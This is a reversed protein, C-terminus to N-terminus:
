LPWGIPEGNEIREIYESMGFARAGDWTFETIAEAIRSQLVIDGIKRRNRLPAVQLVRATIIATRNATRATIRMARPDKADTWDTFTDLDLIEEYAGDVLLAGSRFARGDPGARKLLMIGRGDAFSALYLRYWVITTWFRPGWSHDRWGYGDIPFVQGGIAIEGQVRTHQNFHGLSFNRGYMTLVDDRAPVGGHAPAMGTQRWSVRGPARAAVAFMHAPNRLLNPDDLLLFEGAYTMEIARLPEHVAVSLGGADFCDNSTIAPRQFQCAIRGDPLYLCVSLEAYGENVRNGIRMWGGTGTKADFGNSYVSENFNSEPTPTHTFEDQAVLLFDIDSM